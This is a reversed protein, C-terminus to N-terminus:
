WRKLSSRSLVSEGGEGEGEADGEGEGAGEGAGDGAGEGAGVRGTWGDKVHSVTTGAKPDLAGTQEHTVTGGERPERNVKHWAPELLNLLVDPSYFCSLRNYSLPPLIVICTNHPIRDRVILFRALAFAGQAQCRFHDLLFLLPSALVLRSSFFPFLLRSAM